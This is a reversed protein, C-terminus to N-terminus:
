TEPASLKMSPQVQTRKKKIMRIIFRVLDFALHLCTIGAVFCLFFSARLDIALLSNGPPESPYLFDAFGEPSIMHFILPLQQLTYFVAYVAIPKSFSRGSARVAFYLAIALIPTTVFLLPSDSWVTLYSLVWVALFEAALLSTAIGISLRKDFRVPNKERIWCAWAKILYSGLYICYSIGFALVTEKALPPVTVVIPLFIMVLYFLGWILLVPKLEKQRLSFSIPFLVASAIVLFLLLEEIDFSKAAILMLIFLLVGFFLASLM